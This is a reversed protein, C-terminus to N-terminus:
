ADTLAGAIPIVSVLRLDQRYAPLLVQTRVDIQEDSVHPLILSWRQGQGYGVIRSEGDWIAKCEADSLVRELVRRLRAHGPNCAMAFRLQAIYTQAHRRWGRMQERAEQCTLAWTMLNAGPSRVWPFWRAMQENYGSVDWAADTMYVPNRTDSEILDRLLAVDRDSDCAPKEHSGRMAYSQLAIQEDIGLTLVQILRSVRDPALSVADGGELHRYWRESMGVARAVQFQTLGVQSRWQRLLDPFSVPDHETTSM